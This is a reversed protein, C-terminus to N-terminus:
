PFQRGFAKKGQINVFQKQIFQKNHKKNKEPSFSPYFFWYIAKYQKTDKKAKSHKKKGTIYHGVQASNDAIATNIKGKNIVGIIICYQSAFSRIFNIFNFFLNMNLQKQDM